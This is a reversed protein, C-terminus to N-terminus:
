PLGLANRVAVVRTHDRVPQLEPQALLWGMRHPETTAARALADAAIDAEGLAAAIICLRFPYAQWEVAMREADARRGLMVYVQALWPFGQDLRPLAELANGSYLYARALFTQVFPFDPDAADVRQLTEVAEEYRGSLLQVEGIERQVTLSAPDQRLADGLLQLAEDFRRHPMLVGISYGTYSTTVGPGLRIADKFSQEARTWDRDYAHAWALAAHAAPLLPDLAVATEASPRIFRYAVDFAIGRYPISWFVYASALGAHAAACGRDLAIARQFLQVALQANAMGRRDILANGRVCLDHADPDGDAEAATSPMAGGRTSATLDAALAHASEHRREPRPDIAREVADLVWPPVGSTVSELPRREGREHARRLAGLDSAVVPYTGTLLFFLLVGISYIDSRITFGNEGAVVEPAMYLPTGSLRDGSAPGRERGSGLDMLVVRGDRAMMVNQAKIDLHLLGAAHVAAVGSCIARGITAVETPSFRRQDEIVLQHLTRGDIYEMWLGVRDDIREAGHITVVNPHRVRALLRGEEIISTARPAPSSPDTPLLKLAVERDLRPDWARHVDGFAGRGICELLRLPGWWDLTDARHTDVIRAVARLRRVLLQAAPACQREAADWDVPIGDLIKGALVSLAGDDEGTM